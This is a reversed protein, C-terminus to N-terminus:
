SAHTAKITRALELAQQINEVRVLQDRLEGANPLGHVYIKFFKKLLHFNKSTGWTQDFLEVHYILLDMREEITKHEPDIKPDFIWPNKFIGRGIMVGDVGFQQIKDLGDQYSSVDGNGIIKTAPSLHNRLQVALAIEDWHAPFHSMEKAIRGHVTIAALQHKLLHGIWEETVWHSVGCRTKVSVPLGGSGEQTAKIIESAHDPFNILGSCAGRRVKKRVPCGMNIDIGAFGQASLEQAIAYYNEPKDGWLQAILPQESPTFQLRHAVKDRGVSRLGEVNTFETFFIDPAGCRLIVQRFVSDTVDEMPAQIFLPGPKEWINPKTKGIHNSM